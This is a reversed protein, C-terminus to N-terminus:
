LEVEEVHVAGCAELLARTKEPHFKTDEVEISIFFRDDSARAFRESRFLSSYFQPLRNLGLMGLVAGLASFLVMLEFTVPVFAQWSFLPKASIIYPYDVANLYWQLLMAVSAGTLGCVLVIWPLPSAKLGMAKDLGHVPFPTHCDWRTYGDERVRKAAQYIAAASEFEALLGYLEKHTRAM